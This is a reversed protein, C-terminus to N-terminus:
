INADELPVNEDHPSNELTEPLTARPKLRSSSDLLPRSARWAVGLTTANHLFSVQGSGAVGFLGLGLFLSNLIVIIWYNERIRVMVRDALIKATPLADLRGNLLQVNAVDKALESGDSLAVGVRALSLAASDNLGDGIMMIRHGEKNFKELISAKEDPLLEAHYEDFGVKEAMTKASAKLDGTLMVTKQIGLEKLQVLTETAHYRLKDSITIIAALKTEVALYIMSEGKDATKAMIESAGPPIEIGEDEVIFHHSGLHVKKDRWVSSIGHAVVYDVHTHEEEHSLGELKAQNVVARGVPHPFHEELCAALCLAEDRTFPEFPYIESVQPKAETLTGTKDFICVNAAALEELYRGGKILIGNENGERMASLVAIPTSLRIACSFDVLLANGAKNLNGTFLFTAIALLFNFPVIADAMREARGQLGSKSAEADKIYEIISRIRTNSGVRSAKVVIEGEEVTTGAFVAGGVEKHVPLPEGTMTAQNVAANGSFVTGDVPILGGSQVIVLSGEVLESERVQIPSDDPGKIWILADPGKLSHFLCSLSRRRTWAELFNSLSFFFLLTGLSKFDRRGICLSLAVADLVEVNLSGKWLFEKLGKLVYPVAKVLNFTLRIPFPLLVRKLLTTWIPNLPLPCEEGVCLTKREFVTNPKIGDQPSFETLAKLIHERRKPSPDYLILISGTLRSYSIFKIEGQKMIATSLKEFNEQGLHLPDTRFRLRGRLDCIVRGIM